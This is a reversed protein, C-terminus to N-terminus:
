RIKQANKCEKTSISLFNFSPTSLQKAGGVEITKLSNESPVRSLSFYIPKNNGSEMDRMVEQPTQIEIVFESMTRQSDGKPPPINVSTIEIRQWPQLARKERILRFVVDFDYGMCSTFEYLTALTLNARGSLVKTVRSKNWQLREAVQSRTISMRAMLAALNAAVEDKKLGFPDLPPLDGFLDIDDEDFNETGSSEIPKPLNRM